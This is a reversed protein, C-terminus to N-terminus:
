CCGSCLFARASVSAQLRERCEIDLMHSEDSCKVADRKQPSANEKGAVEAPTAERPTASTPDDQRPSVMQLAADKVKRSASATGMLLPVVAAAAVERKHRKKPHQSTAQLAPVSLHQRISSSPQSM